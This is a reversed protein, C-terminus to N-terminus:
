GEKKSALHALEEEHEGSYVIAITSFAMWIHQLLNSSCESM